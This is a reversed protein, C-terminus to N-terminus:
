AGGGVESQISIATMNDTSKNKKATSILKKVLQESSQTSVLLKTFKQEPIFKHIGDCTLVIHDKIDIPIFFSEVKMEKNPGLSSTLYEGVVTLSIRAKEEPDEISNVYNQDVTLQTATKNEIKYARSDGINTIYIKSKGFIVFVLTTGMDSVEPHENSYLIMEKKITDVAAKSWIIINEDTMNTLDLEMFLVEMVRIAMSSALKGGIHGGMGDALVAVAYGYKNKFIAANDQNENRLGQHSELHYKYKM